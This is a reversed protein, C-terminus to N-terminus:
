VRRFGFVRDDGLGLGLLAELSSAKVYRIRIEDTEAYRRRVQNFAERGWDVETDLVNYWAGGAQHWNAAILANVEEHVRRLEAISRATRLRRLRRRVDRLATSDLQAVRLPQEIYDIM